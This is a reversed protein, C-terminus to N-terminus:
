ARATVKTVSFGAGQPDALVAQRFEAGPIDYPAAIVEGDLEADRDAAADVDDV